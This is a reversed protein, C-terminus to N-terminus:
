NQKSAFNMPFLGLNTKFDLYIIHLSKKEKRLNDVDKM